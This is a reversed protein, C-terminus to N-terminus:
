SLQYQELGLRKLTEKLPVGNEDWGRLKYYSNLLEELKEAPIREGKHPGQPIEEWMVKYPLTDDRRRIGERINFMREMNVIREGIENLEATSLELGTVAKVLNSYENGFAQGLASEMIFRCQVLSDGVASLNQNAIALEVKGEYTDMDPLYRVRADQHSGGRTNTAYGIALTKVVRPSHGAIELGKVQYAYKWSEGGLIGSMRRTGEALLDGIGQRYATKQILDLVLGADSFNLTRNGARQASIIGEQFCEIAFAITIGMSITDLGYEDCLVNARMIAEMDGIGVMPGLAYITEYEPNKVLKGDLECLKGCAVPCSYCSINKRYYEDRLMEGSVDGASEFTEERLNRTGLAGSANIATVGFATGLSTLHGTRDNLVTQIRRKVDRLLADSHVKPKIETERQVVVAKLNKSGMVTGLGGRGAIGPRGNPRPHIISAYRVLREGAVGIACVECNKIRASLISRVEEPSRGMLDSADRIEVGASTVLIYSPKGAKGRIAIADYGAHKLTSAFRGGMYSDFFLGTLPSKAAVCVRDSGQIGTGTVPGTGFFLVNEPSLADIGPRVRELFLKIALGNGGLFKRFDGDPITEFVTKESSLDITALCGIVGDM